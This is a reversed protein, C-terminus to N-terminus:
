LPASGGRFLREVLWLIAVRQVFLCVHLSAELWKFAEASRFWALFLASATLYMMQFTAAIALATRADDPIFAAAHNNTAITVWAPSVAVFASIAVFVGMGNPKVMRSNICEAVASLSLAVLSHTFVSLQLLIEGTNCLQAVALNILATTIAADAWRSPSARNSHFSANLGAADWVRLVISIISASFVAYAPEAHSVVRSTAVVAPAAASPDHWVDADFRYVRTLKTEDTSWHAYLVLFTALHVCELALGVIYFMSPPAECDGDDDDDTDEKRRHSHNHHHGDGGSDHLLSGPM